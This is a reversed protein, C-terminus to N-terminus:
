SSNEAQKPMMEQLSESIFRYPPYSNGKGAKILEPVDKRFPEFIIKAIKDGVKEYNTMYSIWVNVVPDKFSFKELEFSGLVKADKQGKWGNTVASRIKRAFTELAGGYSISHVCSRLIQPDKFSGRLIALAREPVANLIFAEQFWTDLFSEDSTVRESKWNKLLISLKYHVLDDMANGTPIDPDQSVAEGIQKSTLIDPDHSFAEGIQKSTIGQMKLRRDLVSFAEEKDKQSKDLYWTQVSSEKFLDVLNKNNKNMSSVLLEGKLIDASKDGHLQNILALLSKELEEAFGKLDDTDKAIAIYDMMAARFNDGFALKGDVVKTTSISALLKKKDLKALTTLMIGAGDYEESNFHIAMTKSWRVFNVSNFTYTEVKDLGSAALLNFAIKEQENLTSTVSNVPKSIVKQQSSLKHVPQVNDANVLKEEDTMEQQSSLKLVPQVDDANVLKEEATMEQLLSLKHVPQVNDANVLKVENGFARDIQEQLQVGILKSSEDKQLRDSLARLSKKLDDVFAESKANDQAKVGYEILAAGFLDGFALKDGVVKTNSISEILLDQQHEAMTSVMLGAADKPNDPFAATFYKSWKRFEDSSFLDKAKDAHVKIFLKNGAALRDSSYRLYIHPKFFRMIWSSALKKWLNSPKFYSVFRSLMGAEEEVAVPAVREELSTSMQDPTSLLARDHRQAITQENSMMMAELQAIESYISVAVCSLLLFCLRRSISREAIM